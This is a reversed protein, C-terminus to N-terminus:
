GGCIPHIIKIDDGDKILTTDYIEKSIYDGNVRVALVPHTYRLLIILSKITMGDQWDMDRTNVKIM